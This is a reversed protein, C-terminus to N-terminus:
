PNKELTVDGAAILRRTNNPQHLILSGTSDIGAARGTIKETGHLATVTKGALFDYRTWLLQLETQTEESIFKAYADLIATLLKATFRNLCLPHGTSAALTTALSRIEEPLDTQQGNVNIGLGFSLDRIRDQDIRAETLMGGFKKGSLM